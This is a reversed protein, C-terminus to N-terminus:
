WEHREVSAWTDEYRHPGLGNIRSLIDDTEDQSLNRGLVFGFLYRWMGRHFTGNVGRLAAVERDSVLHPTDM